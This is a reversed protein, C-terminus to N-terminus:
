DRDFPDEFKKKDEGSHGAAAAPAAAPVDITELSKAKLADNLKASYEEGARDRHAVITVTDIWAPITSALAPMYVALGATWAGLGTSQFISLNDEIGEPANETPPANM